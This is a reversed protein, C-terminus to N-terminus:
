PKIQIHIHDRPSRRPLGSLRAAAIVRWSTRCSLARRIDARDRIEAGRGGAVAVGRRNAEAGAAPQSLATSPLQPEVSPEAIVPGHVVAQRGRRAARIGLLRDVVAHTGAPLGWRACRLLLRSRAQPRRQALSAAAASIRRRLSFQRRSLAHNHRPSRRDIARSMETLLAVLRADVYNRNLICYLRSGAAFPREADAYCPLPM